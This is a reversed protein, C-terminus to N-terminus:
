EKVKTQTKVDHQELFLNEVPQKKTRLSELLSIYQKTVTDWRYTKEVHAVARKRYTDVITDNEVVKQMQVALNQIMEESHKSFAFPIGADGTVEVNEPTGLYLVCNGYGMGEILAPHTGGVETAQVYAYANQQLAKYEAGYLFGTFIIREDSTSMVQDRYESNYTADGIIILKMDTTIKEFAKVVVHVNNEPEFRSVYLFYKEKEVGHKKMVDPFEKRECVTGYPIMTSDEGRHKKYFDHIVKADTVLTTPFWKALYSCAKLYAKAVTPWKKRDWELGDVNLAVPIGFLRPIFSVPANGVNVMLVVDVKRKLVVHIVSLATHFITDFFKTAITPLFVLHMGKYTDGRYSINNKRCYVYVEHGEQVLNDGIEEAFTEFGGYNAPIGRHGIIAIKM